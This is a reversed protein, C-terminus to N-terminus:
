SEGYPSHLAVSGGVASRQAGFFRYAFPTIARLRSSRYPARATTGGCFSIAIVPPTHSLCPESLNHVNGVAPATETLKVKAMVVPSKQPPINSYAKGLVSGAHENPLPPHLIPGICYSSLIQVVVDPPHGLAFGNPPPREFPVQVSLTSLFHVPLKKPPVLHVGTDCVVHTECGDLM